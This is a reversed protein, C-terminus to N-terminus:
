VELYSLTAALNLPSQSVFSVKDGEGLVIKEGEFTFTEGAPLSLKRVVCTIANDLADGDPIIHMDFSTTNTGADADEPDYTNCVLIGTIAYQKGSPVTILDLQTGTLTANVVAM